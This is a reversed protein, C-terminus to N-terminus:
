MLSCVGKEGVIGVGSRGLGVTIWGCGGQAVGRGGGGERWRTEEGEVKDGRGGGGLM